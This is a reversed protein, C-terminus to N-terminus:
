RDVLQNFMPALVCPTLPVMACGFALRAASM